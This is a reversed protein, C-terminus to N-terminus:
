KRLIVNWLEIFQRGAYEAKAETDFCLRSAFGAYALSFTFNTGYFAFSSSGPANYFWPLWKCQNDDSYDAKWGENLAEAIVTLHYHAAFYERMDEPFNSLDPVNPRGTAAMADEFSKIKETINIKQTM